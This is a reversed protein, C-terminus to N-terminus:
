AVPTRRAMRPAPKENWPERGDRGGPVTGHIVSSRISYSFDSRSVLVRDYDDMAPRRKKLYTRLREIVAHNDPVVVIPIIDPFHVVYWCLWDVRLECCYNGQESWITQTEPVSWRCVWTLGSRSLWCQQWTSCNWKIRSTDKKASPLGTEKNWDSVTGESGCLQGQPPRYAGADVPIIQCYYMFM